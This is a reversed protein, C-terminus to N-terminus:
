SDHNLGMISKVLLVRQGVCYGVTRDLKVNVSKLSVSSWENDVSTIFDHGFNNKKETEKNNHKKKVTILKNLVKM